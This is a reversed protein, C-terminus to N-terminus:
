PKRTYVTNKRLGHMFIKGHSVLTKLLRKAKNPDIQCSEMAERRTIQGHAEAFKIIMQEQQIADFGVQRVYGSRDGTEAYVRASLMYVRARTMGHAEILGAEM